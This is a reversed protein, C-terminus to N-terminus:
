RQQKHINNHKAHCIVKFEDYTNRHEGSAAREHSEHNNDEGGSDSSM